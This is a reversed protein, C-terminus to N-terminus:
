RPAKFPEGGIYIADISRTNAINELPNANLVLIDAFAGKAITGLAGHKGWCSAAAGTASVLAQMPTLGAAVMMELELHEFFGQFRGVPGTDTGMAIRIGADSVRKLNAKAIELGAKYKQGQEWAPSTRIRAQRAPDALDTSVEAPYGRRFFPDDAWTPTRDYVFTSVERMLTPSYCVRNARMASLFADDVPMDRVSHVVFDAGAAAVAKADALYFLHVGLKLHAAHASGLVARWAAEPMKKTAGLNDDIRIKVLDPELAIVKDADARAAEATEAWVSPGALFVRARGPPAKAQEARLAFAEPEDDGLAFVTTVGYNAYARLQRLLNERTYYPPGSRLGDVGALHGHANVIGPMLTKGRLDIRTAGDPVPVAAAPGIEGILGDRVVVTGHEIVRGTGDIVRGDVFATVQARAPLSTLLLGISLALTTRTM